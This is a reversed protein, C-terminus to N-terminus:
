PAYLKSKRAILQYKNKSHVAGSFGYVETPKSLPCGRIQYILDDQWVVDTIRYPIHKTKLPCFAYSFSNWTFLKIPIFIDGIQPFLEPVNYYCLLDPNSAIYDNM